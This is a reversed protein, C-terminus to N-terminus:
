RSGRSGHVSAIPTRSQDPRAIARAVIHKRALDVADCETRASVGFNQVVQKM